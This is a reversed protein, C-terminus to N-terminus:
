SETSQFLYNALGLQEVAEQLAESEGHWVIKHELTSLHKQLACLLQVSATDAQSVDSIDIIVDSTEPSEQFVQQYLSEVQNITFESPLKLM